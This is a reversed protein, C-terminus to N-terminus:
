RAVGPNTKFPIPARAFVRMRASTPPGQKEAGLLVPLM